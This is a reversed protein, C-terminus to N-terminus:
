YVAYDTFTLFRAHDGMFFHPAHDILKKQQFGLWKIRKWNCFLAGM